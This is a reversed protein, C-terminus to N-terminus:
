KVTIKAAWDEFVPKYKEGLEEDCHMTVIYVYNETVAILNYFFDLEESGEYETAYASLTTVGRVEDYDYENAYGNAEIHKETADIVDFEESIYWNTAYERRGWVILVFTAEGNSFAVPIDQYNRETMDPPLTYTLENETRTVDGGKECSVATLTCIAVLLLVALTKLLNKM